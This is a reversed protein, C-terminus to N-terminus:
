PVYGAPRVNQLNTPKRKLIRRAPDGGTRARSGGLAAAGVVPLHSQHISLGAAVAAVLGTWDRLATDVLLTAPTGSSESVVPPRPDRGDGSWKRGHIGDGAVVPPGSCFVDGAVSETLAPLM